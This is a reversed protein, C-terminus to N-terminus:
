KKLILIITSILMFLISINSIWQIRADKDKSRVKNSTKAIMQEYFGQPNVEQRSDETEKKKVNFSIKPFLTDYNKKGINFYIWQFYDKMAYKGEKKGVMPYQFIKTAPQISKTTKEKRISVRPAFIDFNQSEAIVPAPITSVGYSTKIGLSYKFVEGETPHGPTIKEELSFLGVPVKDKLPHPPLSLVHVIFPESHLTTYDEKREILLPTRFIKYKLITLGISPLHIDSTDFPYFIGSYINYRTYTKDNIIVSDPHLDYPNGTEEIWCHSPKVRAIIKKVQEKLDIFNIEAANTKAVYFAVLLEFGEGSYIKKKDSTISFFADEKVPVFKAEEAETGREKQVGTKGKVVQISRGKFNYKTGNILLHFPQLYYNGPKRPSYEQQITYNKKDKHFATNGKVFDEIEPFPSISKLKENSFIVTISFVQHITINGTSYEIQIEPQANAPNNFFFCAIM